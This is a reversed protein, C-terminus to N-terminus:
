SRPQPIDAPTFPRLNVRTHHREGTAGYVKTCQGTILWRDDSLLGAEKMVDGPGKGLNDWDKQALYPQRTGDWPYPYRYSTGDITVHPRQRPRQFVCEVDVILAQLRLPWLHRLERGRTSWLWAEVQPRAKDKWRKYQTSWVLNSRGKVERRAPVPRGWLVLVLPEELLPFPGPPSM